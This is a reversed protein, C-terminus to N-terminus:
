AYLKEGYARRFAESDKATVPRKVARENSGDSKQKVGEIDEVVEESAVGESKASTENRIPAEDTSRGEDENEIATMGPASEIEALAMRRAEQAHENADNIAKPAGFDMIGKAIGKAPAQSEEDM